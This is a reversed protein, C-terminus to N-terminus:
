CLTTVRCHLSSVFLLSFFVQLVVRVTIGTTGVSVSANRAEDAAPAAGAAGPTKSEESALKSEDMPKARKPMTMPPALDKGGRKEKRAKAEDKQRASADNCVRVAQAYWHAFGKKVMGQIDRLLFRAIECADGRPACVCMFCQVGVGPVTHRGNLSGFASPKPRDTRGM